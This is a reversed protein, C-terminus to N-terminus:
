ATLHEPCVVATFALVDVWERDIRESEFSPDKVQYCYIDETPDTISAAIDTQRLADFVTAVRARHAALTTDDANSGVVVAATVEYVNSNYVVEGGTDRASCVVYPPEVTDATSATNVSVSSDLGLGDVIAKLRAELKGFLDNAM